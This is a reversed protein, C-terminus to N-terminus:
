TKRKLRPTAKSITVILQSNSYVRLNQVGFEKIIDLGAILVKYETENNFAFFELHLGQETIIGELSAIVVGVRSGELNSSRDLYIEWTDSPSLPTNLTLKSPEIIELLAPEYSYYM